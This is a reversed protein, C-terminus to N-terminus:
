RFLNGLPIWRASWTGQEYFRVEILGGGNRPDTQDFILNGMSHFHLARESREWAPSPRHPHCGVVLVAGADEAWSALQRERPGPTDSYETGAHMFAVLPPAPPEARWPQFSESTLLHHAPTPLNALDSAVGVRMPGLQRPPGELLPLIENNQLIRIMQERAAAGYDLSHNNELSVAVVGLKKLEPIALAADMGIRMPHPYGPPPGDLIVGELNVVLPRGGTVELIGRRIAAARTEDAFARAVHRGFHTDGGFFWAEGPLAAAPIFEPSYIQTIYSTTRPENARGGYRIANRNDIVVPARIGHVRQQITMQLWQAAKSDLHRPQDLAPIAAPDGYSLAMLTEQDKRAAVPQSLYHSFDTSQIVLTRPSVLPVLADALKEWDEPRSRIHLAVPVVPVDPFWKALFPLIAHVGHEHSFLNSDEVLEHKTLLRVAKQDVPVDGWVTRFRRTTTAAPATARRFHDPTLLLIREYDGGSALLLPSAIMDAALLHHPVTVGTIKQKLAQTHRSAEAVARHFPAANDFFIPFPAEENMGLTTGVLCTM